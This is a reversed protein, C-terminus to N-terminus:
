FNFVGGQLNSTPVPFGAQLSLTQGFYAASPVLMLIENQTVHGTGPISMMLCSRLDSFGNGIELEVLGPLLSPLLSNSVVCLQLDGPPGVFTFPTPIFSFLAQDLDGLGVQFIPVTPTAVDFSITQSSAGDSVTLMHMGINLIPLNLQITSPGQFWVDQVALANGDVTVAPNAFGSGSLTQDPRSGPSVPLIEYHFGTVAFSPTPLTTPDLVDTTLQGTNLPDLYPSLLEWREALRGYFDNVPTSCTSAGKILHGIARGNPAFLPSGSSGGETAGEEWIALNWFTSSKTPADVDISIKKADGRPHHIGVVNTPILDSRDWGALRVDYAAPPPTNLRVLNFDLDTDMVLSKSGLITDSTPPPGSACLPRDYNFTFVAMDLNTCHGATLVLAAGDGATNNMLAGSCCIGTNTTIQVVAKAQEQWGAGQPCAVDVECADSAGLGGSRLQEYGFAGRYDHVMSAISLEPKQAGDPHYYELTVGEGPIPQIAFQGSLQNNLHTYAGHVFERADDYAFLEAGEPLRFRSFALMLSFAGRSSLRLRWVRDGNGLPQWTGHTEISIDTPIVKGFKFAGDAPEAAVGAGLALMDLAPVRHTVVDEPLAARSSPPAGGFERQGYSSGALCTLAALSALVFGPSPLSKSTRTATM